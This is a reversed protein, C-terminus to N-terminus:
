NMYQSIKSIILLLINKKDEQLNNVLDQDESCKSFFSELEDSQMLDNIVDDMKNLELYNLLNLFGRGALIFKSHNIDPFYDYLAVRYIENDILKQIQTQTANDLASYFCMGIQSKIEYQLTGYFNLLIIYISKDVFISPSVNSMIIAADSIIFSGKQYLNSDCDVLYKFFRLVIAWCNENNTLYLAYEYSFNMVATMLVALKAINRPHFSENMLSYKKFIQFKAFENLCNADLTSFRFLAGLIINEVDIEVIELSRVLISFLHSLVKLQNVDSLPYLCLSSAFKSIGDLIYNYKNEDINLQNCLEQPVNLQFLHNRNEVSFRCYRIIGYLWQPELFNDIMQQFIGNEYLKESINRPYTLIVSLISKARKEVEGRYEPNQSFELLKDIDDPLQLYQSIDFHHILKFINNLINILTSEKLPISSHMAGLNHNLIKTNEKSLVQNSSNSRLPHLLFNDDEGDDEEIGSLNNLIQQRISDSSCKYNM